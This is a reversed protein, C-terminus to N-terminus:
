LRGGQYKTREIKILSELVETRKFFIRNSIRHFPIKGHEKWKHITMRSVKLLQCVEKMKLLEEPEPPPTEKLVKIEERIVERLIQRLESSQILIMEMEKTKISM